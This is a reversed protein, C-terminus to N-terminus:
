EALQQHVVTVALARGDRGSVQVSEPPKGLLRNFLDILIRPDGKQALKLYQAMVGAFAQCTQEEFYAQLAERALVKRSRAGNPRGSGPRRGGRAM